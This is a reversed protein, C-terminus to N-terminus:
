PYTNQENIATKSSDFCESNECNCPISLVYNAYFAKNSHDEEYLVFLM